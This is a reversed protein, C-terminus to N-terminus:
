ISSRQRAGARFMTARERLALGMFQPTSVFNREWLRAPEHAFRYAWELGSRCLWEPARKVTGAFYDFVAGVSGM